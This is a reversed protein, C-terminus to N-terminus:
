SSGRGRHRKVSLVDNIELVAQKVRDLHNLNQIDVTITVTATHDKHLKVQTNSINTSCQAIKLLIDSLVGVRDIVDIDIKVRQTSKGSGEASAGGSGSKGGWHIALLREPNTHSLNQCDDRHVMVGRSRTVVGVIDEGLLPNCCKAISYLMGELGQINDPKTKRSRESEPSVTHSAILLEPNNEIKKAAESIKLRNVVRAMTLEGYGLAILMDELTDYNLARIVEAMKGDKIVSDVYQRGLEEELMQRGRTEHEEKYHKKFWSRIRAKAQQTQVFSIWDLRPNSKKSTIIEVIDGNKLLTNLPAMKGNVISGTCTNGVETHIRYAFDVPTSDTPLVVVRGKPTFVFVEDRFIDLKVSDVYEKASDAEDKMEVMQKLWAFKMDDARQQGSGTDSGTGGEKYKWHAAIGYEALRHMEATRIQVELPNGNPGIVTTHLSQYLNSKPIAIYDKFRGPIPTFAHHIMGLVEYCEKDSDVIIRVASIDYIEEVTKQRTQMKKYISYYNKSRGYIEAKINSTDLHTQIKDIVSHITEERILQSATVATEIEHFKEPALYKLSLDELEARIKGMGMRNALPAFIELTESSIRLQKEPAMYDLTQMNHLRDALKLMIVRVDDAMALFMKRFNEAQRDEKSAFEFKGLKTVGEVLKLIDEGFRKKIEEASAETDELTDHMLAAAVTNTDVPINALILAVSVPHVIYNESNKRLQGEHRERAYEFGESVLQVEEDSRGQEKLVDVLQAFIQDEKLLQKAM